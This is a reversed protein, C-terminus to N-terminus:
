IKRKNEKNFKKFFLLIKKYSPVHNYFFYSSNEGKVPLYYINFTYLIIPNRQFRFRCEQHTLKQSTTLYFSTINATSYM